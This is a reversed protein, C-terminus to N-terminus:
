WRDALARSGGDRLRSYDVYLRGGARRPHDALGGQLAAADTREQAGKESSGPPFKSLLRSTFSASLENWSRGPLDRAIPPPQGSLGKVMQATLTAFSGLGASLLMLVAILLWTKKSV